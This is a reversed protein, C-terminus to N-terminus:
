KSNKEEDLIVHGPLFRGELLIENLVFGISFDEDDLDLYVPLANLEKKIVHENLSKVNDNDISSFNGSSELVAIKMTPFYLLIDTTGIKLNEEFILHYFTHKIIQVAEEKKM